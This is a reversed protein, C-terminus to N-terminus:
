ANRIRREVLQAIGADVHIITCFISLNTLYFDFLHDTIPLRYDPRM